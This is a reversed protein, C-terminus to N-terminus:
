VIGPSERRAHRPASVAYGSSGMEVLAQRVPRATTSVPQAVVRVKRITAFLRNSSLAAVPGRRRGSARAIPLPNRGALTADLKVEAIGSRGCYDLATRMLHKGVGRGRHEQAVLMMGIWALSNVWNFITGVSRCHFLFSDRDQRIALYPVTRRTSANYQTFELSNIWGVRWKVVGHNPIPPRCPLPM